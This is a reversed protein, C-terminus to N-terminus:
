KSGIFEFTTAPAPKAIDRGDTLGDPELLREPHHSHPDAADIPCVRFRFYRLLYAEEPGQVPSEPVPDKRKILRLM